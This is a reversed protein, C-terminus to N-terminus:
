VPWTSSQPSSSEVSKSRGILGDKLNRAPKRPSNSVVIFCHKDPSAESLHSLNKRLLRDELGHGVIHWFVNGGGHALHRDIRDKLYFFSATYVEHPSDIPLSLPSWYEKDYGAIAMTTLHAIDGHLKFM